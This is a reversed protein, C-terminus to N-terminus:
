LVSAESQIEKGSQFKAQNKSSHLSMRSIKLKKSSSSFFVAWFVESYVWISVRCNIADRIHFLAPNFCVFYCGSSLDLLVSLLRLTVELMSACFKVGLLKELAKKVQAQDIAHHSDFLVQIAISVLFTSIFEYYESLQLCVNHNDTDQSMICM